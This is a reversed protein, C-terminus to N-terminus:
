SPGKSGKTAGILVKNDISFGAFDYASGSRPPLREQYDVSGFM